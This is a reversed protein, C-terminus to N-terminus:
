CVCCNLTRARYLHQQKTREESNFRSGNAEAELQLYDIERPSVTKPAWKLAAAHHRNTDFLDAHHRPRIARHTQEGRSPAVVERRCAGKQNPNREAGSHPPSM